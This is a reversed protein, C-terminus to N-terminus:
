ILIVTPRYVHTATSNALFITKHGVEDRQRKPILPFCTYFMVNKGYWHQKKIGNEQFDPIHKKLIFQKWLLMSMHLEIRRKYVCFLFFRIEKQRKNECLIHEVGLKRLSTKTGFKVMKVSSGVFVGM